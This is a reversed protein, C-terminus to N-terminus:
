FSRLLNLFLNKGSEQSKEPHFQIGYINKNKIISPINKFYNTQAIIYKKKGEYYYSHNFFFDDTESFCLEKSKNIRRINNWGIHYNLNELQKIKGPILNLGATEGFEYSKSALLQMGLCIGVIPIGNNAKKKILNILKNRKLSKIAIPFSGIGPLIIVEAREIEKKKQTLITNYGLSKLFIELSKQNGVKYDILTILKM